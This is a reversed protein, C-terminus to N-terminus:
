DNLAREMIQICRNFYDGCLDGFEPRSITLNLDEGEYLCDIDITYEQISSLQM